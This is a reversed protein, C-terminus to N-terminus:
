HQYKNSSFTVTMQVAVHINKKDNNHHNVHKKTIDHFYVLSKLDEYNLKKGNLFM